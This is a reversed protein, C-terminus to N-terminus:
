NRFQYSHLRAYEGGARVLEEHTGREIVGGDGLVVIEDANKVTSLRHAVV